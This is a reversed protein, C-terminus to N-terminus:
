DFQLRTVYLYLWSTHLHFDPEHSEISPYKHTHKKRERWNFKSHLILHARFQRNCAAVAPATIHLCIYRQQQSQILASHM